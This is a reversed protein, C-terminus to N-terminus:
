RNSRPPPSVHQRWGPLQSHITDNEPVEWGVWRRIDQWVADQADPVVSDFALGYNHASDGPENAPFRCNPASPFRGAAVCREFNARLRAQNSFSRTVSTITPHIRNHNAIALAYEAAPRLDPHMGRLQFTM